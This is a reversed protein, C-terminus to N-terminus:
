YRQHHCRNEKASGGDVSTTNDQKMNWFPSSYNPFNKLFFVPGYENRLRAEHEYELERVGYKQAVDAYDGQPYESERYFKDFGLHNLLTIEM